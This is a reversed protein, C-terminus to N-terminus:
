KDKKNSMEAEQKILADTIELMREFSKAKGPGVLYKGNVVLSPTGTIGYKSGLREALRMKSDVTFSQYAKNFDEEKVGHQSFFQALDSKSELKQNKNQIQDYFDPHLTDLVGLAEATFFAKAHAAWHENFIAPKRSFAVSAPQKKIWPNLFAEFHYCHPCGYWFFELVEVKAPDATPQPPKVLDYDVGPQFTEAAGVGSFLFSFLLFRIVFRSLSQM